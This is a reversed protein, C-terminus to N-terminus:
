LGPRPRRIRLYRWLILIWIGLISVLSILQSTSFQGGFYVGREFDGRLYENFFRFVAYASLSLLFIGGPKKLPHRVFLVVAGALLMCFLAELLQTPHLLRHLPAASRPDSFVLGWWWDTPRGYCCGAALCGMRGIGIGLLLPAACLDAWKWVDEKFYKLFAVGTIVGVILGGYLVFGGQWFYFIRIPHDLYYSPAEIVIHFLRSGFFGGLFSVLGLDIARVPNLEYRKTLHIMLLIAGLFGFLYLVFYTPTELFTEPFLFPRM